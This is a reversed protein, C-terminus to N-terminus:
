ITKLIEKLKTKARSYQTKSTSVSIGLIESIEVHDYGEILYLCLVKKFGPALLDIGTKVKQLDYCETTEEESVTDSINYEQGEFASIPIKKKKLANISTNIVIRKLWAGFTSQYDFKNISRFANTFSEQLVDEADERSSLMNFSINYMADVYLKYLEYQANRKGLKCKEILDEHM